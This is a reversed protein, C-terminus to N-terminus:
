DIEITIKKEKLNISKVKIGGISMGEHAEGKKILRKIENILSNIEDMREFIRNAAEIDRKESAELEKIIEEQKQISAKIEKIRNEAESSPERQAREGLYFEDLAESLTNYTKYRMGAYKKIDCLAYDVFGGEGIYIRPSINALREKFTVVARALEDEHGKVAAADGNPDLGAERIVDENYLPGFDFYRGFAAILKKKEGSIASAADKASGYDIEDITLAGGGGPFLYRMRPRIERERQKVVRYCLEVIGERSLILNGKGFMELILEYVNGANELKFILIRDNRYQRVEALRSGIIRKRMAMAFNTAEGVEESFATLNITYLLKCYVTGSAHKSSFSFRFAGNGLDYFKSLTSGRLGNLEACIARLEVSAIERM